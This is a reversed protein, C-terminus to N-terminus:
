PKQRINDPANDGPVAFYTERIGRKLVKGTATRPLDAEVFTLVSPIKFAALSGALFERIARALDPSQIGSDIQVIAAVEEGYDAHPLGVVAADRVSPHALLAAEVEACYVNEGGRIIIDKKRDVIYHLGIADVYGLDGSKFWGREFAANTAAANQWYGQIVNPGRIWFEGIRGQPMEEGAEGTVRLEATAFPRGVSTPHALYEDGSIGAIAGTTETMGYGTGPAARAAFQAGIRHILDPPVPAGGSAASVVSSLSADMESATELLRRMVIPVGSISTIGHAEILRVAEAPDWKYMLVLEAGAAMNIYIAGLGGIHFFPYTQLVVARPPPEDIALGKLRRNVVGNLATNMVDAVHNGHTLVAGKPKGTTGSTYLITAPDSWGISVHPLSETNGGLTQAFGVSGASDSEARAVIVLLNEEAVLLPRIRALREGDVFLASPTSDSLAYSLEPTTWWANLAVAIAGIAQCAWFAVIWEPYNRMAIAIRDGKAIGRAALFNALSAVQAFHEEYTLSEGQYAIFPRGGFSQSALLVERLSGPGNNFVRVAYGASRDETLEFRGSATLESIIHARDPM